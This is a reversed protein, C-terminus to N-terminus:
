QKQAAALKEDAEKLSRKLHMVQRPPPASPLRLVADACLSSPHRPVM